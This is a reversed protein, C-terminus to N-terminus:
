GSRARGMAQELARRAAVAALRRRYEAAARDDSRPDLAAAGEWAAEWAAQRTAERGTLAAEAVAMRVPVDGVGGIALRAREVTGDEALSVMAAASVLSWGRARPCIEAFGGGGNELPVEVGTLLEGAAIATEHAGRFFDGAAVQREERGRIVLRADLATMVAPLTGDPDAFALNGGVTGRNRVAPFAIRAAADALIPAREAIEADRELARIRTMAGIRLIGDAVTVFDLEGVGNIDVLRRPRARRANMLAVLSQGGALVASGPEAVHSLAEEVDSAAVYSFSPPKM